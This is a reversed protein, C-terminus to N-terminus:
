LNKTFVGVENKTRSNTFKNVCTWGFKELIHVEAPNGTMNVTAMISSYGFERALTEKLPMMEQAIGEGRHGDKVFTRTSVAIGCCNIMEMLTFGAIEKGGTRIAIVLRFPSSDLTISFDSWLGNRLEKIIGAVKKRGADTDVIYGM